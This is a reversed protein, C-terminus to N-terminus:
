YFYIIIMGAEEWFHPIIIEILNIAQNYSFQVRKVVEDILAVEAFKGYRNKDNFIM